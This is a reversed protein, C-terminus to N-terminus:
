TENENVWAALDLIVAKTENYRNWPLFHDGDPLRRVRPPHPLHEMAFDVHEVMALRDDEAHLISIPCTIEKWRPMLDTLGQAFGISEQNAANWAPPLLPRVFPLNGLRHFWRIPEYEPSMAGSLLVAGDVVEPHDVALQLLITAGFSHGMWLHPAPLEAALDALALAHERLEGCADTKHDYGLRIPAVLHFRAQLEPDNLYAAFADWNGPSGHLFLLTAEPRGSSPKSQAATLPGIKELGQPHEALFAQSAASPRNFAWSSGWLFALLLLGVGLLALPLFIMLRRKMPKQLSSP